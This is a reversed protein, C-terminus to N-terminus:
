VVLPIFHWGYGAPNQIPTRSFWSVSLPTLLVRNAAVQLRQGVSDISIMLNAWASWSTFQYQAQVIPNGLADYASVAIEYGSQQSADNEIIIQLGPNPTGSDTIDSAQNGFFFGADTETDPLYLWVSFLATAFGAPTNALAGSTIGYVPTEDVIPIPCYLGTVFPAIGLPVSGLPDYANLM